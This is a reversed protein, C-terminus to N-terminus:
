HNERNIGKKEIKNTHEKIKKKKVIKERKSMKTSVQKAKELKKKIHFSVDNIESRKEKRIYARLALM